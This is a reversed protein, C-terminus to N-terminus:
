ICYKTHLQESAMSQWAMGHLAASHMAFQFAFALAFAISHVPSCQVIIYHLHLSTYYLASHLAVYYFTVYHLTIYHLTIYRLPVTRYPLVLGPLCMGMRVPVHVAGRPTTRPSPWATASPSEQSAGTGPCRLSASPPGSKPITEAQLNQRTLGAPM